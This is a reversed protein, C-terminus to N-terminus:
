AAEAEVTTTPNVKVITPPNLLGNIVFSIDAVAHYRHEEGSMERQHPTCLTVIRKVGLAKCVYLCGQAFTSASGWEESFKAVRAHVTKLTHAMEVAENLEVKYVDRYQPRAWYASITNEGDKHDIYARIKLDHLYFGGYQELDYTTESVNYFQDRGDHTERVMFHITIESEDTRYRNPTNEVFAFVEVKETHKKSKSNSSM